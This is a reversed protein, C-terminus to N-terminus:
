VASGASFLQVNNYLHITNLIPLFSFGSNWLNLGKHLQQNGGGMHGDTTNFLRTAFDPRITVNILTIELATRHIMQVYPMNCMEDRSSPAAPAPACDTHSPESCTESGGGHRLTRVHERTHFFSSVLLFEGDLFNALRIARSKAGLKIREPHAMFM